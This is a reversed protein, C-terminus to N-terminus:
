NPGGRRPLFSRVQPLRVPTGDPVTMLAPRAGSSAAESRNIRITAVGGQQGADVSHIWEEPVDFFARGDAATCLRVFGQPPNRGLFAECEEIPDNSGPTPPPQDTM